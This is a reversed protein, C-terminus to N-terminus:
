SLKLELGFSHDQGENTGLAKRLNVDLGGTVTVSPSLKHTLGLGLRLETPEDAIGSKVTLKSRYATSSTYQYDSVITAAPGQSNKRCLSANFGFKLVDSIQQFLGFGVINSFKGPKKPIDHRSFVQLQTSGAVHALLMQYGLQAPVNKSKDMYALEYKVEGGVYTHPVVNVVASGALKIPKNDEFPYQASGKVALLDTKHSLSLKGSLGDKDHVGTVGVKIGPTFLDKFVLGSEFAGSSAPSLKGSFELNHEKWEFKPEITFELKEV